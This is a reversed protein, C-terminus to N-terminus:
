HMRQRVERHGGAAVILHEKYRNWPNRRRGIRIGEGRVGVAPQDNRDVASACIGVGDSDVTSARKVHGSQRLRLENRSEFLDLVYTKRAVGEVGFLLGAASGHTDRDLASGVSHM